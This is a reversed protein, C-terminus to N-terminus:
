RCGRPTSGPTNELSAGIKASLLELAGTVEHIGVNTVTEDRAVFLQNRCDFKGVRVIPVDDCRRNVRARIDDDRKVELVERRLCKRLISDLSLVGVIEHRVKELKIRRRYAPATLRWRSLKSAAM